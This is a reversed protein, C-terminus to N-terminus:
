HVYDNVNAVPINSRPLGYRQMDFTAFVSLSYMKTKCKFCEHNSIM